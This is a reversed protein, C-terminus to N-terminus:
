EEVPTAVIWWQKDATMVSIECPSPTVSCVADTEIGTLPTGTSALSAGIYNYDYNYDTGTDLVVSFAAEDLSALTVRVELTATAGDAIIVPAASTDFVIQMAHTASITSTEALVRDNAPNALDCEILQVSSILNSLEGNVLGNLPYWEITPVVTVTNLNISDTASNATATFRLVPVDAADTPLLGDPNHVLTPDQVIALLPTAAVQTDVTWVPSNATTVVTHCDCAVFACDNEEPHLQDTKIGHLDIAQIYSTPANQWALDMTFTGNADAAPDVRIEMQYTTDASITLAPSLSSLDLELLNTAPIQTLELVARDVTGSGDDTYLRMAGILGSVNAGADLIIKQLTVASSGATVAFSLVPVNVDGTSITQATMTDQAVALPIEGPTPPICIDCISPGKQMEDTTWCTYATEVACTDDCGDEADTNGDDCEELTSQILGDGCFTCADAGAADDRCGAHYDADGVDTIGYDCTEDGNVSGDGCSESVVTATCDNECGDDAVTNGDDCAELASQIVNDGCFTCADAGAAPGRCGAHYDGDAEDTIDFDCTEGTDIEGDGCYVVAQSRSLGDGTKFYLDEATMIYYTRGEQMAKQLDDDAFNDIAGNRALLASYLAQTAITASNVEGASLYFRGNFPPESGTYEYLWFRTTLDNVLTKETSANTNILDFETGTTKDGSVIIINHQDKVLTVGADTDTRKFVYVPVTSTQGLWASGPLHPLPYPTRQQQVAIVAIVVALTAGIALLRLNSIKM